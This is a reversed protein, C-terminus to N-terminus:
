REEGMREGADRRAGDPGARVALKGIIGDAGPTDGTGVRFHNTM